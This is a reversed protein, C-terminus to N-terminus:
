HRTDTADPASAKFTSVGCNELTLMGGRFHKEGFFSEGTRWAVGFRVLVMDPSGEPLTYPEAQIYHVRDAPAAGRLFVHLLNMRTSLFAYGKRLRHAAVDKTQPSKRFMKTDVAHFEEALLPGSEERRTFRLTTLATGQASKSTVVYPDPVRALKEQAGIANSALYGYLALMEGFDGTADDLEEDALFDESVLFRRLADVRDFPLGGEGVTFRRLWEEPFKITGQRNIMAQDIAPSAALRQMVASLPLLSRGTAHAIRYSNLRARIKDAKWAAYLPPPKSTRAVSTKTSRPSRARATM